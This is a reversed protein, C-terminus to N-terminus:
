GRGLHLLHRFAADICRSHQIGARFNHLGYKKGGFAFVQATGLVYEAPILSIPAKGADAKKGQTSM